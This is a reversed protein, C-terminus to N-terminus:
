YHKSKIKYNKLLVVSNQNSRRIERKRTPTKHSKSELALSSFHERKAERRECVLALSVASRGLNLAERQRRMERALTARALSSFLLLALSSFLLSSFCLSLLSSFLLSAFRSILRMEDRAGFASSFLHALSCRKERTGFASSLPGLLASLHNFVICMTYFLMFYCSFIDILYKRTIAGKVLKQFNIFNFM